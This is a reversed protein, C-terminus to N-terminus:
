NNEGIISAPAARGVRGKKAKAAVFGNASCRDFLMRANETVKATPM